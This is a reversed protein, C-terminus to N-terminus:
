ELLHQACGSLLPRFRFGLKVVAFVLGICWMCVRFAVFHLLVLGRFYQVVRCRSASSSVNSAQLQAQAHQAAQVVSQGAPLLMLSNAVATARQTTSVLAVAKTDKLLCRSHMRPTRIGLQPPCPRASLQLGFRM